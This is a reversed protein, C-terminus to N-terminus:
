GRGRLECQVDQVLQVIHENCMVVANLQSLLGPHSECNAALERERDSHDFDHLLRSFNGHVNSRVFQFADM